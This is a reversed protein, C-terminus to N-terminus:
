DYFTPRGQQRAEMSGPQVVRAGQGLHVERIRSSRKPNSHKQVYDDGITRLQAVTGAALLYDLKGNDRQFLFAGIHEGPNEQLWALISDDSPTLGLSKLYAIFGMRAKKSDYVKAVSLVAELLKQFAPFKLKLFIERPHTAVARLIM